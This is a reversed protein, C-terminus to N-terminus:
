FSFKINAGIFDRDNVLNFKDAGWFNTYSVDVEWQNQYTSRVGVTLAQRGERFAGGPGPSIGEFDWSYAVRPSVNWPGILGLYDLRSAVRVGMSWEDPFNKSREFDDFHASQLPENGSIPTGPGNLRLGRGNPGDCPDGVACGKTPLDAFVAGLEGVVVVQDSGLRPGFVKTFTTSTQWHEYTDWGKVIENVGFGGLQGFAALGGTGITSDLPSLAAFLVELDDFQLPQDDRYAVEGQWAWGTTGIQTNFSVGLVDIDEPFETFYAATAAYEHQAIGSALAAVDGGILATNAGVTAWENLQATSIDGGLSAAAGGGAATGIAVSANFSNGAALAQAAAGAATAGGAGNGVGAQTGTRASILPLRSHYRIWYFGFETGGGLQPVFWRFAAGYQDGDDAERTPDRKVQRYDRIFSGGLPTFDTGLDSVAGFGLVVREGGDPVFDNSAFYSGVPDPETDDWDYQYFVDLSTNDTMGVTFLVIDQPLLAERLEAGPVRIKAVDVHNIVNLGGQIFTSEGWNLVQDGIRFEAPASGIDFKTWLFADLLAIDDGVKDEAASSLPTRERASDKIYFDYFGSARTFAGFRNDYNLELETTIKLVQSFVGTDFNQTGDDDNPGRSEGGASTAIIDNDPSQVRWAAGASLTTDWSGRFRGNESQFDVALAPAGAALTVAAVTAMTVFPRQGPRPNAPQNTM